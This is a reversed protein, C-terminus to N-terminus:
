LLPSAIRLGRTLYTSYTRTLQMNLENTKSTPWSTQGRDNPIKVLHIINMWNIQKQENKPCLACSMIKYRVEGWRDEEHRTTCVGYPRWLTGGSIETLQLPRWKRRNHPRAVTNGQYLSNERSRPKQLLLTKHLLGWGLGGFQLVLPGCKYDPWGQVQEAHTARGPTLSELWCLQISWQSVCVVRGCYPPPGKPTSMVNGAQIFNVICHIAVNLLRLFITSFVTVLETWHEMCQLQLKEIKLKTCVLSRDRLDKGKGVIIIFSTFPSVHHSPSSGALPIATM